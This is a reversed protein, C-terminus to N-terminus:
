KGERCGDKGKTIFNQCYKPHHFSCGEGKKGHRCKNNRFFHCVGKDKKHQIEEEKRSKQLAKKQKNKETRNVEEMDEGNEEDDSM